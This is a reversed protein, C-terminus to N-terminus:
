AVAEDIKATIEDVPRQNALPGIDSGSSAPGVRQAAVRNGLLQTFEDAVRTHVHFRNAATCARGGGRLKATM